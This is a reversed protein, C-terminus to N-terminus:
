EESSSLDQAEEKSNEKIEKHISEEKNEKRTERDKQKKIDGIAKLFNKSMLINCGEVQGINNGCANM